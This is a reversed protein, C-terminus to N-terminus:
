SYSIYNMNNVICGRLEARLTKVILLVSPNLKSFKGGPPESTMLKAVTQTAHVYDLVSLRM